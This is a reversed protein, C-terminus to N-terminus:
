RPQGSPTCLDRGIDDTHDQAILEFMKKSREADWNVALDAIPIGCTLGSEGDVRTMAFAFQAAAIPGTGESVRVSKAGSTMVRWYRVPNVLTRWSVVEGGIRSVVERQNEARGIDGLQQTNRSRAYGLATKGDAEQCGRPIDLHAKPDKMAAEPCIEIGGVADVLDVFGTFGIEVYHDIRIGTNQEMTEVLLKPGGFAFAGNVKTVGHGPVDVLSDRPVSLLLNPGDGTHLLMITDTRSGSLSKRADSGVVLYTTGPQDEPREGGPDADVTSVTTWAYVPVVILYVLWAVLLYVLWKPRFRRRDRSGSRPSPTLRERLGGLRGRGQESPTPAITRPHDDASGAPRLVQTQEADDQPSHSRSGGYLWDYGEESSGGGSRREGM